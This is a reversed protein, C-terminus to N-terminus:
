RTTPDVQDRLADGLFNVALITVTIVLGPLVSAWPAEFIYQRAEGVMAGWSTAPPAIGMGLFSISSEILIFRAILYTSMVSVTSALNPLFHRLM